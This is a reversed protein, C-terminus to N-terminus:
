TVVIEDGSFECKERYDAAMAAAEAIIPARQAEVSEVKDGALNVRAMTQGDPGIVVVQLTPTNRALDRFTDWPLSVDVLGNGRPKIPASAHLLRVGGDAALARLEFRFRQRRQNRMVLYSATLSGSVPAAAGSGSWMGLVMLGSTLPAANWHLYSYEPKGKESLRTEMELSGPAAPQMVKCTYYDDSNPVPAHAFAAVAALTFLVPMTRLMGHRAIESLRDARNDM